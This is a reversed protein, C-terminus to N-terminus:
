SDCFSRKVEGPVKSGSNNGTKLRILDVLNLVSLARFRSVERDSFSDELQEARKNM